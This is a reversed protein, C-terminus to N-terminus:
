QWQRVILNTAVEVWVHHPGKTWHDAVVEASPRYWLDTPDELGIRERAILVADDFCNPMMPGIPPQSHDGNPYPTICLCPTAATRVYMNGNPYMRPLSNTYSTVNVSPGPAVGPPPAGKGAAGDPGGYVSDQIFHMKLADGDYFFTQNQMEFNHVACPDAGPFPGGENAQNFEVNWQKVTMHAPFRPHTVNDAPIESANLLPTCTTYQIEGELDGWM